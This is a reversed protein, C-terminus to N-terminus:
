RPRHGLVWRPRDARVLSMVGLLLFLSVIGLIFYIRAAHPWSLPFFRSGALLARFGAELTWLSAAVVACLLVLTELCGCAGRIISADRGSKTARHALARPITLALLVLAFLLGLGVSLGDRLADRWVYSFWKLWIISRHDVHTMVFQTSDWFFHPSPAGLDQWERRNYTFIVERHRIENSEPKPGVPSAAVARMDLTRTQDVEITMAANLLAAGVPLGLLLVVTLALRRLRGAPPWDSPTYWWAVPLRRWPRLLQLVLRIPQRRLSRVRDREAALDLSCGCEPCPHNEPLGRLDYGCFLCPQPYEM